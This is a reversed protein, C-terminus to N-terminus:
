WGYAYGPPAFPGHVGLVDLMHQKTSRSATDWILYPQEGLNLINPGECLKPSAVLWCRLWRLQTGLRM